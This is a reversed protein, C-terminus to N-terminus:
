GRDFPAGRLSSAVPARLGLHHAPVPFRRVTIRVQEVSAQFENKWHVYDRACTTLVEVSAHKALREAVVRAELEAGGHIDVGYRQVVVALKV